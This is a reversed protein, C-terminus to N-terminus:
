WGQISFHTSLRKSELKRALKAVMKTQDCRVNPHSSAYKELSSIIERGKDLMRHLNELEDKERM